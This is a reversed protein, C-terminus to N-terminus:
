RFMGFMMEAAANFTTILGDEGIAIMADKTSNMVTHLLDQSERLEDEAHQRVKIEERLEHLHRQLQPFFTKRISSDGLGIVKDRLGKSSKDADSPKKM